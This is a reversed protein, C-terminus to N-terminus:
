SEKPNQPRRLRWAGYGLAGGVLLLMSAPEPTGGSPSPKNQKFQLVPPAQPTAAAVPRLAGASVTAAAGADVGLLAILCLNSLLLM